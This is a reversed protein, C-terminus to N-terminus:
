GIKILFADIAPSHTPWVQDAEADIQELKSGANASHLLLSPNCTFDVPQFHKSFVV